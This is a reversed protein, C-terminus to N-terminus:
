GEELGYESCPSSKLSTGRLHIIVCSLKSGSLILLNDNSSTTSMYSILDGDHSYSSPVRKVWGALTLETINSAGASIKVRIYDDVSNPPPLHAVQHSAVAALLLTMM